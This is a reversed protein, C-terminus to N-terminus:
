GIKENSTLLSKIISFIFRINKESAAELKDIRNDYQRLPFETGDIKFSHDLFGRGSGITLEAENYQFTVSFYIVDNKQTKIKFNPLEAKFLIEILKLAEDSDMFINNDYYNEVMCSAM